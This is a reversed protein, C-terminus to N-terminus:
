TALAGGVYFDDDGDGDYDAVAVGPGLQSLRNPLLPQQAFDDHEIERHMVSAGLQAVQYWPSQNKSPSHAPPPPSLAAAQSDDSTSEVLTVRQNAKINTLTQTRGSPWRAILRTVRKEKGLGFHILPENSSLFGTYPSLLRVQKGSATEITVTTGIGYRNSATGRLAILLRNGERSDNRYLSVPEDLNAVVLDLDGDRDLDAYATAYSMSVRDLGWAQSVDEFKLDGANRYALNQEPRPPGKEALDWGTRGIMEAADIPHDSHTFSRAVGNSIFVDTRGDNDFDALKIAWTWDSDALGALEAAEFFRDTGSSLYLANKMIQPPPGMVKALKAASMAGMTTKQAYHTTASMDAVLLDLLGDGNLDGFDAGMSFWSTHPISKRLVDTFTGDGNNRYLHDPDNFDNGVYADPWGDQNCDWWTISQGHGPQTIGAELSTETFTGDGNNRLLHDSRGTFDMEYKGGGIPQIAYYKAFEKLMYPRGNRMAFTRKKPRGGARYYRYTLVYLDLDGDCDYDCFAPMLCADVLDLGFESAAERFAGTGDNLFLHNPSDYNCVYIDLDGDNDIDVMAAGAGWTEGGDIGARGTVEEGTVEEFAFDGVQRYLRNRGPGSVFFLDPRDDGDVDGVVVGGCAFGSIYLHKMPHELDLANTFDVGTVKPDLLAFRATTSPALASRDSVGSRQALTEFRSSEAAWPSTSAEPSSPTSFPEDVPAASEGTSTGTSSGTSSISSLDSCGLLAPTLLLSAALILRCAFRPVLM